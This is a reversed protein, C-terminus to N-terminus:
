TKLRPFDPDLKALKDLTIDLKERLEKIQPSLYESLQIGAAEYPKCAEQWRAYQVKALAKLQNIDRQTREEKTSM